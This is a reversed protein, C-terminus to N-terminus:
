KCAKQANRGRPILCFGRSSICSLGFRKIGAASYHTFAFVELFTAMMANKSRMASMRFAFMLSMISLASSGTFITFCSMMSISSCTSSAVRARPWAMPEWFTVPVVLGLERQLVAVLGEGALGQVDLNAQFALDVLQLSAIVADGGLHVLQLVLDLGAIEYAELGSVTGRITVFAIVYTLVILLGSVIGAAIEVRCHLLHVVGYTLLHWFPEPHAKFLGVPDGPTLSLAIQEHPGYDIGALATLFGCTFLIMISIAIM